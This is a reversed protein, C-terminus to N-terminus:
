IRYMRVYSGILDCKEPNDLSVYNTFTSIEKKSAPFYDSGFGVYWRYGKRNDVKAYIATECQSGGYVHLATNKVAVIKSVENSM